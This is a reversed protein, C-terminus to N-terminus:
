PQSQPHGDYLGHKLISRQMDCFGKPALKIHSHFSTTSISTSSQWDEFLLQDINGSKLLQEYHARADEYAEKSPHGDHVLDIGDRIDKLIEMM